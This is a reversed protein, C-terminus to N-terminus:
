RDERNALRLGEYCRVAEGDIRETTRTFTVQNSLRRAFWSRGDPDIDHKKAWQSYCEFIDGAIVRNGSDEVIFESAFRSVVADADDAIEAIPQQSPEPSHDTQSQQSQEVITELTTIDGNKYCVAEGCDRVIVIAYDKSGYNPNVFEATPVFPEMIRAWKKLLVDKSEYVYQQGNEIAIYEGASRDYTYIAPVRDKTIESLSASEILREGDASQLVVRDDEQLWISQNNGNIIPQLATVGNTATAGGNFSLASRKTYLRTEGTPLQRVPSSVIQEVREAWYTETDGEEVVFIPYSQNEQAKRLNALVQAPNNPTTTEVEIAFPRDCTSHVAQADPQESGDQTPISVTCGIETLATEIQLLLEDHREKGATQSSGTNPAVADEGKDTLRVVVDSRASDLDVAILRSRRRSETLAEITPPEAGTESALTRIETDVAKASIWGNYERVGERIQINRITHAITHDLENRDSGLISQLQEPSEEDFLASDTVGFERQTRDHVESLAQQFQLEEQESLPNDSEPHGPPIPLPKISFPYPGTEGFTPSPLQAIWEGRPLSRIRNAFEIPDLDEHAMAHALERDVNVKGLIPSGINNLTNLYIRRGGESQMQEPFQMSLGVSLRFSRGKELLTNLVDSVVVSAAEDILLNVVYDDSRQGLDDSHTRLADELATLIVGTLMQAANDRLQGLDFLIVQNTDLIERFDFQPETNNFIRRLHADQSIYAFRNSVGGMVNAFTRGDSQLQRQITRRVEVDSSKPIADEHPNPPGAQWLQDLAYELQQHAFYDTSERHKGNERGYEEDFLTKILAEIVLPSATAREYRDRGMVLKLIEEYHDAKRQVADVRRQGHALGPELNFFSFGPLTDPVSFHLVNQEMDTVGFRRSHARLYNETMGDGKPDILIIPGNTSEYLSLIDNILAKSKGAGTTAARLYHTPLLPAPISVPQDEPLGNEDLAYGITMGSRFQDMLDPNPRPLPNRSRQKSRSGRSGDVSMEDGGPIVVLNSLEDANLTLHSQTKRGGTVIETELIRQLHQTSRKRGRRLKLTRERVQRGSLEYFPGDLPDLASALQELETSIAPNDHLAITVARANVTFTRKPHKHEIRQIRSAAEHSLERETPDTDIPDLWSGILDEAWTDRGERLDSKRIEADDRWDLKRQWVIQYAVPVSIESLVDIIASLPPREADYEEDPEDVVFPAITTMWDDTRGVKGMWEVGYPVREQEASSRSQIDSQVDTGPTLINELDFEVQSITFSDPYISRLRKELTKLHEDQDVGYYFEIPEDPGECIVLFEFVPPSTNVRPDISDWLGGANPNSLKHLSELTAPIDTRTVSESSPTIQLYTQATM